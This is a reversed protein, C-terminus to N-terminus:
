DIFQSIDVYAHAFDYVGNSNVKLVTGGNLAPEWYCGAGTKLAYILNVGEYCIIFNNVHDHGAIVYQTISETLIADFMGDDEPYCAIGEHQVGISNQYKENWCDIGDAQAVNLETKIIDTKYAAQSATEYAYIPIHVMLVSKDCGQAKLAKCTDQYWAIQAKTLKSWVMREEGASNVYPEQHHTDMMILAQIIKNNEEIGIVYNGIGLTPDGKEFLFHPLKLYEDTMKNVFEPGNQNDHNGWIIAWPIQFSEMLKGFMQYAYDQGAWALDGTITILDPKVREILQAVTHELIKRNVHGEEWESAGLQPDTLNLIIFDKNPQKKLIIM